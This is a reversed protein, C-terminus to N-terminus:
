SGLLNKTDVLGLTGVTAVQRFFGGKIAKHAIRYGKFMENWTQAYGADKVIGFDGALKNVAILVQTANQIHYAFNTTLMSVTNFAAVRDQIANFFGDERRMTQTYHQSLLEYTEQLAGRDKAAEKQAEALAENINGATKITAILNAGARAQFIFSRVM